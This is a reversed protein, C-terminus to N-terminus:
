QGKIWKVVADRPSPPCLIKIINMRHEMTDAYDPLWQLLEQPVIHNLFAGMVVSTDSVLDNFFGDDYLGDWFRPGYTAPYHQSERRAFMTRSLVLVNSFNCMQDPSFLVMPYISQQFIHQQIDEEPLLYFYTDICKKTYVHRKIGDCRKFERKCLYCQFEAPGDHANSKKLHRRYDRARSFVIDCTQCSRVELPENSGEERQPSPSSSSERSSSLTYPYTSVSRNQQLTITTTNAEAANSPHTISQKRARRGRFPQTTANVSSDSGQHQQSISLQPLSLNVKHIVSSPSSSRATNCKSFNM